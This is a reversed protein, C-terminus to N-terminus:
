KENKLSNNIQFDSSGLFLSLCLHEDVPESGLHCLPWEHLLGFGPVLFKVETEWVPPLPRLVQAMKQKRLGNASLQVPFPAALIGVIGWDNTKKLSESIIVCNVRSTLQLTFNIFLLIDLM